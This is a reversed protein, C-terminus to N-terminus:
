VEENKSVPEIRCPIYRFIPDGTMKDHHSAPVFRSAGVGYRKGNFDFGFHHPLMVYGRCTLWSLEIAVEESHISTSLKVMDGDNVGMAKGDEPNMTLVCPNRYKYTSPDRLTGNMGGDAHKGSSMVFPYEETPALAITELEPTIELLEKEVRANYLHVKGDKHKMKDWNGNIDAKAFIVGEPHDDMAKFVTDMLCFKKFVPMKQLIKHAKPDASYGARAAAGSEALPSTITAAWTIAKTHSGMGTGLTEAIILPLGEKYKLNPIVFKVLKLFYGIRDGNEAAKRGADYLWEPMKPLYGMAMTLETWIRVGERQEGEPKLMPHKLQMFVEPWTYQFTGFDWGEYPTTAPLVYDAHQATETMCVDIVVLLDLADLAKEVLASDPFSRAPNTATMIMARIHEPNKSLIEVPMCWEAYVSNVPYTKSELAQWVTPDEDDSEHVVNFPGDYVVMGGPKCLVGCMCILIKTMYPSLTSHRGMSVGLDQHMCWLKTTLIKCFERLQSYPVGTIKCCAEIDVDKFWAKIDEFGTTHEKLFDKDEWGEKLILAIIAKLFLADTGPKLAIHMDAMRATETVRPDIVILMKDKNESFERISERARAKQHSVYNNCGWAIFVNSRSSDAKPACYQSGFLKGDAWWPGMFEVGLPGFVYKGGALTLFSSMAAFESQSSALTAGAVSISRPGYTNRVSLFKEAIESYAQEWSIQAFEGNVKKLPYNLRDPNHQYSKMLRGKRCCYNKSRPNAPDPRVSIIKNDEIELELGCTQACLNCNSKKWVGM